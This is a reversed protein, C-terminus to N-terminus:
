ATSPLHEKWIQLFVSLSLWRAKHNFPALHKAEETTLINDKLYLGVTQKAKHHQPRSQLGREQKALQAEAPSHTPLRSTPPPSPSATQRGDPEWLM